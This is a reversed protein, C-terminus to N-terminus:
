KEKETLKIQGEVKSGKKGQRRGVALANLRMKRAANKVMGGVANGKLHSDVRKQEERLSQHYDEISEDDRRKRPM